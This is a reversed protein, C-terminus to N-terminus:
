LFGSTREGVLECFVLPQELCYPLRLSSPTGTDSGEQFLCLSVSPCLRVGLLTRVLSPESCATNKGLPKLHRGM